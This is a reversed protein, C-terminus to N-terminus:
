HIIEISVNSPTVTAVVTIFVNGTIVENGTGTIEVVQDQVNATYSGNLTQAFDSPVVWGTFSVAGGGLVEPKNYYRQALSSLHLIETTLLDRKSEVSQAQFMYIGLVIAIGVIIVGLVILLLQQQGM